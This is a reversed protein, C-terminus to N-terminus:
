LRAGGGSPKGDRVFVKTYNGYGSTVRREMNYFDSPARGAARRAFDPGIDIMERGSRTADKIMRENRRMGLDFRHCFM